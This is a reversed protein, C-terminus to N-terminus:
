HNLHNLATWSMDQKLPIYPDFQLYPIKRQLYEIERMFTLSPTYVFIYDGLKENFSFNKNRNFYLPILNDDINLLILDRVIGNDCVTKSYWYNISKLNFDNKIAM